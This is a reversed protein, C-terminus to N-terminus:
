AHHRDLALRAATKMGTLDEVKTIPRKTNFMQGPGHTFVASLDISLNNAWFDADEDRRFKRGTSQSAQVLQM